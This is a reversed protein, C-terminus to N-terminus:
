VLVYVRERCSARGIKYHHALDDYREELTERYLVEIAQATREHLAKRREILVSGYALTTLRGLTAM